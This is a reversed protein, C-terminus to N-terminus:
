RLLTNGIACELCRKPDCYRTKLHLLAQSHAAHGAHQGHAAWAETLTNSEPPLTELLGLARDSALGDSLRRYRSELERVAKRKEMPLFDTAQADAFGLMTVGFGYSGFSRGLLAELEADMADRLDRQRANREFGEARGPNRTYDWSQDAAAEAALLRARYSRCVRFVVIDRITPEPCGIARLNAMLQRPDGSEIGAWPTAPAGESPRVRAIRAGRRAAPEGVEARPSRPLPAQRGVQRWAVGVLVANLLLSLLLLRKM